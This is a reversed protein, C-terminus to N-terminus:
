VIFSKSFFISRGVIRMMECNKADIERNKADNMKSRKKYFKDVGTQEGAHGAAITGTPSFFQGVSALNLRPM